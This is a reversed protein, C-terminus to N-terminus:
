LSAKWDKHGTTFHEVTTRIIQKWTPAFDSDPSIRGTLIFDVAKSCLEGAQADTLGHFQAVCDHPRLFEFKPKDPNVDLQAPDIANIMFEYAAEPYQKKAPAVGEIDRLTVVSVVWRDWAVHAGPCSVLWAEISAPSQDGNIKWASWTCDIFKTQKDPKRM